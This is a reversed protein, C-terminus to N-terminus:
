QKRAINCDEYLNVGKRLGKLERYIKKTTLDEPLAHEVLSDLAGQLTIANRIYIRFAKPILSRVWQLVPLAPQNQWNNWFNTAWPILTCHNGDWKWLSSDVTPLKRMMFQGSTM